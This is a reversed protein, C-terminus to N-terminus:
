LGLVSHLGAKLLYMVDVAVNIAKERTKMGAVKTLKVCRYMKFQVVFVLLHTEEWITCFYSTCSRRCCEQFPCSITFHFDLVVILMQHIHMYSIIQQCRGTWLTVAQLLFYLDTGQEALRKFDSPTRSNSYICKIHGPCPYYHIYVSLGAWVSIM